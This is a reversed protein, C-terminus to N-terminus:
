FSLRNEEATLGREDKGQRDTLSKTSSRTFSDILNPGSFRSQSHKEKDSSKFTQSKEGASREDSGGFMEQRVNINQVSRNLPIGAVLNVFFVRSNEAEKTIEEPELPVSPKLEANTSDFESQDNFSFRASSKKVTPKLEAHSATLSAHTSVNTKLQKGPSVNEELDEPLALERFHQKLLSIAVSQARQRNVNRGGFDQFFKEFAVFFRLERAFDEKLNLVKFLDAM